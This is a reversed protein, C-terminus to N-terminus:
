GTYYYKYPSLGKVMCSANEYRHGAIGRKAPGEKIFVSGILTRKKDAYGLLFL